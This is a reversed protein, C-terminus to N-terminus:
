SERGSESSSEGESEKGSGSESGEGHGENAAAAASGEVFGSAESLKAALADIRAERSGSMAGTGVNGASGAPLPPGGAGFGAAPRSPVRVDVYRAGASSPDALVT